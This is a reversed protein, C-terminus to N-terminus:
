RVEITPVNPSMTHCTPCPLPYHASPPAQRTSIRPSALRLYAGSAVLLVAIAVLVGVVKARLSMPEYDDEPREGSM